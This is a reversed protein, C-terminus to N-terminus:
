VHYEDIKGPRRKEQDDDESDDSEPNSDTKDEAQRRSFSPAEKRFLAIIFVILFGIGKFIWKLISGILWFFTTLPELSEGPSKGKGRGEIIMSVIFGIMLVALVIGGLYPTIPGYPQSNM